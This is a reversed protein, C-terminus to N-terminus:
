FTAVRIQYINEQLAIKALTLAGHGYVDVKLILMISIKTSLQGKLESIIHSIILSLKLVWRIKNGM